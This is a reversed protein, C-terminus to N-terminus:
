QGRIMLTSPARLPVHPALYALGSAAHCALCQPLTEEYAASFADADRADIAAGLKAFGAQEISQQFTSLDVSGGGAVSRVPRIRVAWRLHSSTERLYFAALDWQGNRGAFWLNSFQYEVDTMVHSQTRVALDSLAEVQQRLQEIEAGDEQSGAASTLLCLVIVWFPRFQSGSSTKIRM